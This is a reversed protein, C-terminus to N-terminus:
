FFFRKLLSTQKHIFIDPVVGSILPNIDLEYDIQNDYEILKVFEKRIYAGRDLLSFKM